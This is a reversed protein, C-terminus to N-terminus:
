PAERLILHFEAALDSLLHSQSPYALAAQRNVVLMRRFAARALQQRLAPDSIGSAIDVAREPDGAARAGDALMEDLGPHDRHRELWVALDGRSLAPIISSAVSEVAETETLGAALGAQIVEAERLLASPQAEEDIYSSGSIGEIRVHASPVSLQRAMAHFRDSPSLAGMLDSFTHPAEKALTILFGDLAPTRVQEQSVGQIAKFVEVQEQLPAGVPARWYLDGSFVRLATIRSEDSPLSKLYALMGESGRNRLHDHALSMTISDRLSWKSYLDGMTKSPVYQLSEHDWYRGLWEAMSAPDSASWDGLLTGRINEGLSIDIHKTITDGLIAFTVAAERDAEAWRHILIPYATTKESASLERNGLVVFEPIQENSVRSLIAKLRLSGLEHRPGSSSRKIEAIVAELSGTAPLSAFSDFRSSKAEAVPRDSRNPPGNPIPKDGLIAQTSGILLSSLAVGSLFPKLLSLLATGGALPLGKLAQSTVQSILAEPVVSRGMGSMTTGLSAGGVAIGRRKLLAALKELAREIRKRAADESIGLRSGVTRLDREEFYRHLLIERDGTPLDLLAEDVESAVSERLEPIQHDTMAQISVLERRRRRKEARMHNAARRCTQRHLWVPLPASHLTDAKRALLSFVEQMVDEAGARDGNLRRLATAYVLPSHLRVLDRFAAESRNGVFLRLLELSDDAM